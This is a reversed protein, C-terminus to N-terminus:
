MICHLINFISKLLFVSGMAITKNNHNQIPGKDQITRPSRFNDVGPFTHAVTFLITRAITTATMSYGWLSIKSLLHSSSTVSASPCLQCEQRYLSFSHQMYILVHSFACPPQKACSKNELIHMQFRLVSYRNIMNKFGEIGCLTKLFISLGVM